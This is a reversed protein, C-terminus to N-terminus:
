TMCMARLPKPRGEFRQRSSAYPRGPQGSCGARGGRLPHGVVGSSTTPPPRPGSRGSMSTRHPQPHDIANNNAVLRQFRISAKKLLHQSWVLSKTRGHVLTVAIVGLIAPPQYSM